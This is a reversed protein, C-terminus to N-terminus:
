FVTKPVKTPPFDFFDAKKQPPMTSSNSLKHVSVFKQEVSKPLIPGQCVATQHMLLLSFVVIRSKQWTHVTAGCIEWLKDLAHGANNTLLNNIFAKNHRRLAPTPRNKPSYSPPKKGVIFSWSDCNGYITPEPRTVVRRARKEQRRM